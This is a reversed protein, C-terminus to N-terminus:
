DQLVLEISFEAFGLRRLSEELTKSVAESPKTFMIRHQLEKCGAAKNKKVESLLDWVRRAIAEGSDVWRVHPLLQSLPQLLLPFHTCGLVVTDLRSMERWPSLIEALSTQDVQGTAVYLEALSVLESSGIREVRCDQAFEDILNDLYVRQVTAPTALIGIHKSQSLQAAPKIAPVVGVFPISYRARLAPLVLTSVTNCALVVLDPEIEKLLADCLYLFRKSLADESLEGYPFWANDALYHIKLGSMKQLLSQCVSLGGLGSDLVLIEPANGSLTM